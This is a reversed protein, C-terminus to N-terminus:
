FFVLTQELLRKSKHSCTNAESEWFYRSIFLRKSMKRVISQENALFLLSLWFFKIKPWILLWAFKQKVVGSKSWLDFVFFSYWFTFFFMYNTNSNYCKIVKPLFYRCPCWYRKLRPNSEFIFDQIFFRKLSLM